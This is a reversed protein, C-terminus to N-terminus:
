KVDMLYGNIVASNKDASIIGLNEVIISESISNGVKNNLNYNSYGYFISSNYNPIYTSGLETDNASDTYVTTANDAITGVYYFVSTDNVKSRYIDRANVFADSSTPIATLSVSGTDTTTITVEKATTNLDSEQTTLTSKFKVKYAYTGTEMRGSIATTEAVAFTSAPVTINTKCYISQPTNSYINNIVLYKGTPVNYPSSALLGKTVFINATSKLYGSVVVNNDSASLVEFENLGLPKQLTPNSKGYIEYNFKGSLVLYAPFSPASYETTSLDTDTTTDTYTTDTNNAITTLLYFTTADSSRWIKRANVTINTSVPISSIDVQETTSDVEVQIYTDGYGSSVGTYTSVFEVAYTWTTTAMGIGTGASVTAVAATTPASIMPQVKIWNNERPMKVSTIILSYGNPVTYNTSYLRKLTVPYGIFEAAGSVANKQGFNDPLGVELAVTSAFSVSATLLFMFIFMLTKKM